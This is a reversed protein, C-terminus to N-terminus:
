YSVGAMYQMGFRPRIQHHFGTAGYAAFGRFAARFGLVSYWAFRRGLERALGLNIDFGYSGAGLRPALSLKPTPKFRLHISAGAGMGYDSLGLNTGYAHLGFAEPLKKLLRRYRLDLSYMGRKHPAASTGNELRGGPSLEAGGSGQLMVDNPHSPEANGLSAVRIM